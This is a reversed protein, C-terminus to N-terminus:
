VTVGEDITFAGEFWRSKIVGGGTLVIDHFLEVDTGAKQGNTSAPLLADIAPIGLQVSAARGSRRVSNSRELRRVKERLSAPLPVAMDNAAGSAPPAFASPSIVPM